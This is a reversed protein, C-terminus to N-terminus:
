PQGDVYRRYWLELALLTWLRAGHDAAGATHEDVLTEVTRAVFLGRGRARTSLLLDRAIGAGRGRFWAAVPLHFGQKRKRLTHVPLMSGFADRLVAKQRFPTLKAWIPMRAILEVVHHDLFPVRVELGFAMSAIDVKHLIDNPLYTMLEVHLLKSLPDPAQSERAV